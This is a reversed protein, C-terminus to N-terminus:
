HECSARTHYLLLGELHSVQSAASTVTMMGNTARDEGNGYAPNEFSKGETDVMSVSM